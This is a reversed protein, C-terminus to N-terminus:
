FPLVGMSQGTQEYRVKNREHLWKDGFRLIAPIVYMTVVNRLPIDVGILTISEPVLHTPAFPLTAVLGSLILFVLWRLVEKLAEMKPKKM